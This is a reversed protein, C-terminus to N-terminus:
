DCLGGHGIVQNLAENQSASEYLAYKAKVFRYVCAYGLRADGSVSGMWEDPGKAGKAQNVVGLSAVLNEMDGYFARKRESSWSAAGSNHADYVAVVHDVQVAGNRPSGEHSEGTYPDVWAGRGAYCNADIVLASPASDRILVEHRANQCDGDADPWNHPWHPSTYDDRDYGSSVAPRGVRVELLPATEQASSESARESEATSAADSTPTRAASQVVVARSVKAAVPSAREAERRPPMDNPVSGGCGVVATVISAAAIAALVASNVIKKM